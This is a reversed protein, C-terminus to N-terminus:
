IRPRVRETKAALEGECEPSGRALDRCAQPRKEYITCFFETAGGPTRRPRLAACRGDTMKMYARNGIFCAVREAEAGLRTWDAGTVRVYTDLRSFCCV